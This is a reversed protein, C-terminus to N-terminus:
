KDRSTSVNIPVHDFLVLVFLSGQFCSMPFCAFTDFLYLLLRVIKNIELWDCLTSCIKEDNLVIKWQWTKWWEENYPHFTLFIKLSKNSSTSTLYEWLAIDKKECLYLHSYRCSFMKAEEDEWYVEFHLTGFFHHVIL